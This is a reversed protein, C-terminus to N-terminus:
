AKGKYYSCGTGYACTQGTKRNKSEFNKSYKEEFIDWPILESMKIWRNNPNLTVGSFDLPEQFMTIQNKQRKRYMQDGWFNIYTCAKKAISHM